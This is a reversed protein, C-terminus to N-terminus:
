VDIFVGVSESVEVGWCSEDAWGSRGRMGGGVSEEGRKGVLVLFVVYRNCGM